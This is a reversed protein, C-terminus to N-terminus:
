LTHIHTFVIQITYFFNIRFSYNAKISNSYQVLAIQSFVSETIAADIKDEFCLGLLNKYGKECYNTEGFFNLLYRQCFHM